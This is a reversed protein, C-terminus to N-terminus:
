RMSCVSANQGAFATGSADFHSRTATSSYCYFPTGVAEAITTLAVGEAHLAGNRYSFPPM